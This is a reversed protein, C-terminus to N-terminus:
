SPTAAGEMQGLDQLLVQELHDLKQWPLLQSQRLIERAWEFMEAEPFSDGYFLRFNLFRSIQNATEFDYRRADVM